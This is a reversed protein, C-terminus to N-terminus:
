KEVLVFQPDLKSAKVQGIITSILVADKVETNMRFLWYEDGRPKFGVRVLDERSCKGANGTLLEFLEIRGNHHFSVVKM